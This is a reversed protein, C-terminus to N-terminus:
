RASTAEKLSDQLDYSALMREVMGMARDWDYSDFAMTQNMFNPAAYFMEYTTHRSGFESGVADWALKLVKVRDEPSYVSSKQTKHILDALEPNAFDRVDSPLMILGGGALERITTILKPYLQQALVLASIVANRTPALYSGGHRAGAEMGHVLAEILQTESTLQGLKERVQPFNVIGTTEAVMRAVGVLFRMKVMLRIMSQYNQMAHGPATHFLARCVEPDRLAFVREWPVKVEDFYLIADNEDFRSSLPNDFVSAANEEYSRRCMQKLGKANMPVAFTVAYREEGEQLPMLSAVLVENCMATATGLMKAGKVVIGESDEDVIAVTHFEDGQDSTAKSRDGQPNVIVYTVYHDNDRVFAFYDRLAAARNPDHAELLDIGMMFGVLTSAVHDPARGMFGFHVENWAEIAQRRKALEEYCTPLRWQLNVRDGTAPSAFTMREVNDGAAQFDYLSAISRTSNRFARHTTVDDVLEGNIYIERGDRLAELHQTGDKPM